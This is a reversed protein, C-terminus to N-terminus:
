PMIAPHLVARRQPRTILALGGAPRTDAELPHTEPPKQSAFGAYSGNSRATRDVQKPDDAGVRGVVKRKVLPPELPM